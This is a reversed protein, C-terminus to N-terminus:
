KSCKCKECAAQTEFGKQSCGSYGIQECTNESANYFWREFYAACAENTPPTDSCAGTATTCNNAKNCGAFCCAALYVSLISLLNSM